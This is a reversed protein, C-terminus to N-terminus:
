ADGGLLKAAMPHVPGWQVGMLEQLGAIKSGDQASFVDGDTWHELEHGWPDRWYDFIQSGLIHRGVGWASERNRQKLHAHGRMLDDIGAVEFAAHNFGVGDPAQLLFLTHHDTLEKGRDCRMFAGLAAGPALEIEDSTIFGFHSKYWAESERFDMVNLVCHGLRVVNAAGPEIRKTQRIRNQVRVANLPADQEIDSPERASRGAVVEVLNGDPDKLRVVWGDGPMELKTVDVNEAAALKELDGISNAELGLAVFGPEGTETVHLFPSTGYGHAYLKGDSNREFGAFGFDTLFSQMQALDPAAFRVFAIDKIKITSM